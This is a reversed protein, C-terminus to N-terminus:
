NRGKGEWLIVYYLLRVTPADRVRIIGLPFSLGTDMPGGLSTCWLLFRGGSARDAGIIGPQGTELWPRKFVKAEAYGEAARGLKTRKPM